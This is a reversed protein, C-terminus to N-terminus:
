LTNDVPGAKIIDFDGVNLKVLVDFHVEDWVRQPLYHVDADPSIVLHHM